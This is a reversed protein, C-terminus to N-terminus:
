KGRGARLGASAAAVGEPFHLRRLLLAAAGPGTLIRSLLDGPLACACNRGPSCVLENHEAQSTATRIEGSASAGRLAVWRHSPATALATDPSRSCGQPPPAQLSPRNFVSDTQTTTRGSPRQDSAGFKGPHIALTLNWLCFPWTHARPNLTRIRPHMYLFIREPDSAQIPVLEPLGTQARHYISGTHNPDRYRSNASAPDAAACGSCCSGLPGLQSASPRHTAQVSLIRQTWCGWGVGVYVSCRAWRKM